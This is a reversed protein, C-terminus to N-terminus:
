SPVKKKIYILDKSEFLDQCYQCKFTNNLNLSSTFAQESTNPCPMLQADTDWTEPLYQEAITQLSHMTEALDDVVSIGHWWPLITCHSRIKRVQISMKIRLIKLWRNLRLMM